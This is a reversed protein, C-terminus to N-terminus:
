IYFLRRAAVERLLSRHIGEWRSGISYVDVVRAPPDPLPAFRLGDAAAPLWRVQRGIAESLADVGERCALFVHDFKTLARLWSRARAVFSAHLEAIWCVSVRCRDKWGDIANVYLVDRFGHAVTVFLDYDRILLVRKLGPNAFALLRHGM